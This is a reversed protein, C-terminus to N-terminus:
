RRAGEKSEEVCSEIQDDAVCAASGHVNLVCIRTECVCDHALAAAAMSATVAAASGRRLRTHTLSHTLTLSVAFGTKEEKGEAKGQRSTAQHVPM